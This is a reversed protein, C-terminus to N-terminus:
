NVLKLYSNYHNHLFKIFENNSFDYPETKFISINVADNNKQLQIASHLGNLGYKLNLKSLEDPKIDGISHDMAISLYEPNADLQMWRKNKKNNPVYLSYRINGSKLTKEKFKISPFEKKLIRIFQERLEESNM